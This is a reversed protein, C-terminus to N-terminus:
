TVSIRGHGSTAVGFTLVCGAVGFALGAVARAALGVLWSRDDAVPPWNVSAGAKCRQHSVTAPSTV